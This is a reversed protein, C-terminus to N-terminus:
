RPWPPRRLPQQVQRQPHRRAQKPGIPSMVRTTKPCIPSMVRPKQGWFTLSSKGFTGSSKPEYGEGSAQLLSRLQGGAAGPPRRRGQPQQLSSTVISSSSAQDGPGCPAHPRLQCRRWPAAGLWPAAPAPPGLRPGEGRQPPSGARPGAQGVGGARHRERKRKRSGAVPRGKAHPRPSSTYCPRSTSTQSTAAGSSDPLRNCRPPAPRPPAPSASSAPPSAAPLLGGAAHDQVHRVDHQQTFPPRVRTGHHTAPPGPLAGGAPCRPLPRCDSTFPITFTLRSMRCPRTSAAPPGCSGTSSTSALSRLFLHHLDHQQKSASSALGRLILHLRDHQRKSAPGKDIM